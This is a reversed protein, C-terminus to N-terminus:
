ESLWSDFWVKLAPVRALDQMSIEVSVPPLSAGVPSPRARAGRTWSEVRRRCKTVLVNLEMSHGQVDEQDEGIPDWTEGLFNWGNKNKNKAIRAVAVMM